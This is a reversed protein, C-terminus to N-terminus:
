ERDASLAPDRYRGLGGSCDPCHVVVLTECEHRVLDETEHTTGCHPCTPM